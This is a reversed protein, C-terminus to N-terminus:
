VPYALQKRVVNLLSQTEVMGTSIKSQQPSGLINKWLAYGSMAIAFIADKMAM